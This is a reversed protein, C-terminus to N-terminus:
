SASPSAVEETEGDMGSDHWEEGEGGGAADTDAAREGEQDAADGASHQDAAAPSSSHAASRGSDRGCLKNRVDRLTERLAKGLADPRTHLSAAKTLIRDARRREHLIPDRAM